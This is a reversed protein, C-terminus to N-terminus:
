EQQRDTPCQGGGRQLRRALQVVGGGAVGGVDGRGLGQAVHAVHHIHGHFLRLFAGAFEQDEIDPVAHIADVLEEGVGGHLLLGPLDEGLAVRHDPTRGFAKRAVM